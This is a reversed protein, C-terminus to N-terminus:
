RLGDVREGRDRAMRLRVVLRDADPLLSPDHLGDLPDAFWAIQDARSVVGRAALLSALRASIGLESVAAMADLPAVVVPPFTWRFRPEVM